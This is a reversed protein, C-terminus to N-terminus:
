LTKSLVTVVEEPTEVCRWLKMHEERIYAGDQFYQELLEGWQKGLLIFPRPTIEGVQILSWTLAVESLTGVGGRLSVAADSFAVLHHLRERLSDFRIEEAVWQNAEVGRGNWGDFVSSTVGIVHGGAEAAGRSTAEMLGHYGGTAVTFGAKALLEGLTQAEEYAPSGPKALSSGYVSVIPKSM